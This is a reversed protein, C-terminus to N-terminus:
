SDCTCNRFYHKVWVFILGPTPYSFAYGIRFSYHIFLSEHHDRLMSIGIGANEYDYDYIIGWKVLCSVHLIEIVKNKPFRFFPDTQCMINSILNLTNYDIMIVEYYWIIFLIYRSISSYITFTSSRLTVNNIWPRDLM